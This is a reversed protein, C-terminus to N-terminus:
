AADRQDTGNPEDPREAPAAPPTCVAHAAEGAALLARMSPAARGGAFTAPEPEPQSASGARSDASMYAELTLLWGDRDRTKCCVM